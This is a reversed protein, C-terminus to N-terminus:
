PIAVMTECNSGTDVGQDGRCEDTESGGDLSDDGGGGSLSDDGAGGALADTGVDGRLIDGGEGGDIVDSGQGGDITNTEANGILTDEFPSGVIGEISVGANDGECQQPCGRGDNAVDDLTVRAASAYDEDSIVDMGDGGAYTDGGTKDFAAVLADNGAGGDVM